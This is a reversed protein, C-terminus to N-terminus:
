RTHNQATHLLTHSLTHLLTHLLTHVLTHDTHRLSKDTHTLSHQDRVKLSLQSLLQEMNILNKNATQLEAELHAM